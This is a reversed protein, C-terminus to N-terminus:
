IYRTGFCEANPDQERRTDTEVILEENSGNM